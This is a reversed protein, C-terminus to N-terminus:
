RHLTNLHTKKKGGKARWALKQRQSLYAGACFGMGAPMAFALAPKPIFLTSIGHQCISEIQTNIVM